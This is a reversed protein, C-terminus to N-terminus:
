GFIRGIWKEMNGKIMDGAKEPDDTEMILWQVYFAYEGGEKVVDMTITGPTLTICDALLALGYYDQIGHVPIKIICQKFRKGTFLIKAMEWNSRILEGTFVVFFFYLLQAIRVPHMLNNVHVDNKAYFGSAFWATLGCIVLGGLLEGPAVSLTLLLWFAYCFLFTFIASSLRGHRAM